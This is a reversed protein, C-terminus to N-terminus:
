FSSPAKSWNNLVPPFFCPSPHSEPHPWLLSISFHRASTRFSEELICIFRQPQCSVFRHSVFARVYCETQFCPVGLNIARVLKKCAERGLLNEPLYRRALVSKKVQPSM